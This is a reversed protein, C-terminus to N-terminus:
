RTGVVATGTDSTATASITAILYYGGALGAPATFPLHVM